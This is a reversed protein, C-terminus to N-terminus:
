ARLLLHLSLSTRLVGDTSHVGCLPQHSPLTRARPPRSRQQQFHPQAPVGGSAQRALCGHIQLLLLIQNSITLFYCFYTYGTDCHLCVPTVQPMTYVCMHLMHLLTFMCTYSSFYHLCVHIVQTMNYVYVHLMHHLKFM